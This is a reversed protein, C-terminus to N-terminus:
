KREGYCVCEENVKMQIDVCSSLSFLDRCLDDLWQQLNINNMHETSSWGISVSLDFFVVVVLARSLSSIGLFSIERKRETKMEIWSKKKCLEGCCVTSFVVSHLQFHNSLEEWHSPCVCLLRKPQKLLWHLLQILAWSLPSFHFILASFNYM